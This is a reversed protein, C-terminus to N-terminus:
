AFDKRFIFFVVAFVVVIAGIVEAITIIFLKKGYEKMDKLVFESGISFAIFALALESIIELSKSDSSSVLNFFSPGLLLGVVLYGSVNPLKILNALKGGLFGVVLVISIKLIIDM